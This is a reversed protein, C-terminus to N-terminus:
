QTGGLLPRGVTTPFLDDLFFHLQAIIGADHGTRENIPLIAEVGLQFYQGAWIFGPNVTATLGGGNRDLPSEFAFEVLPILRGLFPGLGVDRVNAQLYPLSYEVAFGYQLTNPHREIERLTAGTTEDVSFRNSSSRLPIAYGLSGTVAVPKLWQM